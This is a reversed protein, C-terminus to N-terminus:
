IGIEEDKRYINYWLIYFFDFAKNSKVKMKQSIFNETASKSKKLMKIYELAEAPTQAVCNILDIEDKTLESM